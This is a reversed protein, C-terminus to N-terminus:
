VMVDNWSVNGINLDDVVIDFDFNRAKGVLKPMVEELVELNCIVELYIVLIKVNRIM